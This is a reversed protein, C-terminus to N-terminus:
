APLKYKSGANVVKALQRHVAARCTRRGADADPGSAGEAGKGGYPAERKGDVDGQGM